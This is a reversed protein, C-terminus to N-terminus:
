IALGRRRLLSRMNRAARWDSPTSAVFVPGQPTEIRVHGGSTHSVCVGLEMVDQLLVAMDGKAIRKM